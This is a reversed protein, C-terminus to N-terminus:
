PRRIEIETTETIAGPQVHGIHRLEEVTLVGRPFDIEVKRVRDPEIGLSRLADGIAHVEISLPIPM